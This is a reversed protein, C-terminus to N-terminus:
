LAARDIEERLAQVDYATRCRQRLVPIGAQRLLETKRRDTAARRGTQHSVDDLEIALRPRLMSPDCLLFDVHMKAIQAYDAQNPAAVVDVLSPKVHIEFRGAVIDRLPDYFALEGKSLMSQPAAGSATPEGRAAAEVRPGDPLGAGRRAVLGALTVVATIGACLLLIGGLLTGLGFLSKTLLCLASGAVVFAGTVVLGTRGSRYAADIL